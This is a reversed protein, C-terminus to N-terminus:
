SAEDMTDDVKPLRQQQVVAMKKQLRWASALGITTDSDLLPVASMSSRAHTSKVVPVLQDLSAALTDPSPTAHALPATVPRPESGTLLSFFSSHSAGPISSSPCGGGAFLSWSGSSCGGQLGPVPMGMYSQASGLQCGLPQNVRWTQGHNRPDLTSGIIRSLGGGAPALHQEFPDEVLVPDQAANLGTERMNGRHPVAQLAASVSPAQPM